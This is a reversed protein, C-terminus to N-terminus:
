IENGCLKAEDFLLLIQQNLYNNYFLIMNFTDQNSTRIDPLIFHLYSHIRPIKFTTDRRYYINIKDDIILSKLPEIEPILNISTLQTMYPNLKKGMYNASFQEIDDLCRKRNIENVIYDM